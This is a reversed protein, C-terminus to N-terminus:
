KIDQRGAQPPSQLNGRGVTLCKLYNGGKSDKSNRVEWTDPANQSEGGWGGIEQPQRNVNKISARLVKTRERV